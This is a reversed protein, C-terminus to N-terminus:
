PELIEAKICIPNRNRDLLLVGGRSACLEALTDTNTIRPSFLVVLSLFALVILVLTIVVELPNM